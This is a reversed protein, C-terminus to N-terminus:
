TRERFPMIPCALLHGPEVEVLRPKEERCSQQAYICRPSFLCSVPSDILNPVTGPIEELEVGRDTLPTVIARMLGRTYPHMPREFITNVDAVEVVSGAYMVAVRDCMEAIVGLDHTILLMSTKFKEKLERMLELIQAQITVDLATTPEDAILLSPNCSLSMAIMVRQKMGGSLEYPYDKTRASPSVGVLELMRVTRELAKDRKLRQHLELVKGMQDGVTFVPNLSTSPDQFIM